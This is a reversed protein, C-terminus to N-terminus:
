HHAHSEIRKEEDAELQMKEPITMIHVMKGFLTNFLSILPHYKINVMGTYEVFIDFLVVLVVVMCLGALENFYSVIASVGFMASMAYMALVTNRHGFHMRYMLQHHLHERDAQSVPQGRLKRRVIALLTDSIPVFLILIPLVLTIFSATKFGLLAFCALLFGLWLAGCDGMFISAPHFNYPLFGMTSGCVILTLICIDRRGMFFGLLGIVCSVIFVIGACLGDLGDILNIANSIGIIWVVSFVIGFIGLDITLGFPLSLVQLGIGGYLIAVLAGALQFLVKVLPRVDFMDDILGGFFVISGGIVIANLTTDAKMFIAMAIMFAVYIAIGGVRVIKGHHVTRKNELAYIHLRFGVRKCIPVLVMAIVFPVIFFPFAGEILNM